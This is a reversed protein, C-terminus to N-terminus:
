VYDILIAEIPSDEILNNDFIIISRLSARINEKAVKMIEATWYDPYEGCEAAEERADSFESSAPVGGGLQELEDDDVFAACDISLMLHEIDPSFSNGAQVFEPKGTEVIRANKFESYTLHIVYRGNMDYKFNEDDMAVISNEDDMAVIAEILSQKPVQLKGLINIRAWGEPAKEDVPLRAVAEDRHSIWIDRDDKSIGVAPFRRAAIEIAAEQWKTAMM